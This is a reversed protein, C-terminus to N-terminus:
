LPLLREWRGVWQWLYLRCRKGLVVDGAVVVTFLGGRGSLLRGVSGREERTGYEESRNGRKCKDVLKHSIQFFHSSLYTLGGWDRTREKGLDRSRHESRASSDEVQRRPSTIM